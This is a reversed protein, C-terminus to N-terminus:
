TQVTVAAHGLGAVFDAAVEETWAPVPPPAVTAAETGAVADAPPSIRGLELAVTGMGAGHVIRRLGLLVDEADGELVLDIRVM